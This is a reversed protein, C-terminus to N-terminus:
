ENKLNVWKNLDIESPNYEIKYNLLDKKEANAELYRSADTEYNFILTRQYRQPQDVIKILTDLDPHGHKEGNTSILYLPADVAQLLGSSINHKSGHHSVKILDMMRPLPEEKYVRDIGQAIVSPFADAAFLLRKSGCELVFAISSGNKCSSDEDIYEDKLSDWQPQSFSIEQKGRRKREEEVALLFYEYADDFSPDAPRDTKFGSKQLERRWYNMLNDLQETNPSLLKLRVFDAIQFTTLAQTTIAKGDAAKNWPYGGKLILAGLSSGQRASVQHKGLPMIKCASKWRKTFGIIMQQEKDTLTVTPLEQHMHRYTNHWIEKIAIIIPNEASGNDELLRIVGGIHDDDIHTVVLLDLVEGREKMELLESKIENDYVDEPGADVLINVLKTGKSCCILFADGHRARFMKIKVNYETM